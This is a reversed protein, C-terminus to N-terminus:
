SSTLLPWEVFGVLQCEPRLVLDFREKVLEQAKKAIDIIDQSTADGENVIMNAHKSSFVAGGSRLEGKVGIKELYYAAYIIKRGNIELDVENEDFNMFFSGCTNKKPYRSDRHRRIEVARGKAYFKKDDGVKKLKFTVSVVFWEKDFLKSEDYGFEFWAEDVVKTEGTDRNIIMASTIFDSLLFQFYHVNIYCAGGISGPVGAFEELGLINNDLCFDILEDIGVGAGVTVEVDDEDLQKISIDKIKPRIVLGDFGDDSVLINAGKGLIFTELDNDKAYKLAEAFEHESEPECFFRANGGTKFWNKDKLSINSQIQM